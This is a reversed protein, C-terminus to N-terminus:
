GELEMDIESFWSFFETCHIPDDVYAQKIAEPVVEIGKEGAAVIVKATLDILEEKSLDEINIQM